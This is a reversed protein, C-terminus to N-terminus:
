EAEVIIKGKQSRVGHATNISSYFMHKGVKTLKRIHGDFYAAASQLYENDGGHVGGFAMCMSTIEDFGLFNHLQSEDTSPRLADMSDIPVMNYRDKGRIVQIPNGDSGMHSHDNGWDNTNSGSFQIHLYDGGM